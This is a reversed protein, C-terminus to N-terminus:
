RESRDARARRRLESRYRLHVSLAYGIWVAASVAYAAYVFEWGGQIVGSL